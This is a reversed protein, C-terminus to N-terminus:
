RVLRLTPRPPWEFPKWDKLTGSSGTIFEAAATPTDFWLKRRVQYEGWHGVFLHGSFVLEERRAGLVKQASPVIKRRVTSDELVVMGRNPGMWVAQAVAGSKELHALEGELAGHRLPNYVIDDFSGPSASLAFPTTNQFLWGASQIALLASGLFMQLHSFRDQGVAQATPRQRNRPAYGRLRDFRAFLSRELVQVDRDDLRDEAETIVHVFDPTNRGALHQGVAPREQACGTLGVYVATGGEVTYTAFYAAPRDLQEIHRLARRDEGAVRSVLPRLEAGTAREVAEAATDSNFRINM